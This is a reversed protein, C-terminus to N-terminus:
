ACALQHVFGAGLEHELNLMFWKTCYGNRTSVQVVVYYHSGAQTNASYQFGYSGTTCGLYGHNDQATWNWNHRNTGQGSYGVWLFWCPEMVCGCHPCLNPHVTGPYAEQWFRRTFTALAEWEAESEVYALHGGGTICAAEAAQWDLLTSHISYTYRGDASTM